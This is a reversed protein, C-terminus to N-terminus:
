EMVEVFQRTLPNLYAMATKYNSKLYKELEDDDKTNVLSHKCHFGNDDVTFHYILNAATQKPIKIKPRESLAAAVLTFHNECEPCELINGISVYNDWSYADYGCAPCKAENM